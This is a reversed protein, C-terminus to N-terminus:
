GSGERLIQKEETITDFQRQHESVVFGFLLNKTASNIRLV